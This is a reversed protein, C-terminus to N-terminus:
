WRAVLIAFTGSLSRVHGGEVAIQFFEACRPPAAILWAELAAREADPMPMRATWDAFDYRKHSLPELHEIRLGAQTIWACWESVTYARVHSPDRWREFRNAFAAPDQGTAEKGRLIRSACRKSGGCHRLAVLTLRWGAIV